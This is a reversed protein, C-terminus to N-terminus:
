LGYGAVLVEVVGERLGPLSVEGRFEDLGDLVKVRFSEGGYAELEIADGFEIRPLCRHQDLDLARDIALVSAIVIVLYIQRLARM